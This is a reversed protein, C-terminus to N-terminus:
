QVPGMPKVDGKLPNKIAMSLARIVMRAGAVGARRDRHIEKKAARAIVVEAHDLAEVAAGRLGAAIIGLYAQSGTSGGPVKALETCVQNAWEDYQDGNM